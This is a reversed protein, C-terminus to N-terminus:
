HADLNFVGPQINTVSIWNPFLDGSNIMNKPIIDGNTVDGARYMKGSQDTAIGRVQVVGFKPPVGNKQSEAVWLFAPNLMDYKTGYSITTQQAKTINSFQAKATRDNTNWITVMIVDGPAATVGPFVQPGLQTPFDEYFPTFAWSTAECAANFTAQM